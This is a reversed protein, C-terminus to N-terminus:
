ERQRRLEDDFRGDVSWAIELWGDQARLRIAGGREMGSPSAIEDLHKRAADLNDQAHQFMGRPDNPELVLEGTVVLEDAVRLYNPPDDAEDLEDTVADVRNLRRVRLARIGERSMAGM